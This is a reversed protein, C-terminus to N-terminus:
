GPFLKRTMLRNSAGALRLSQGCQWFPEPTTCSCKLAKQGFSIQGGEEGSRLGISKPMNIPYGDVDMCLWKIESTPLSQDLLTYRLQEHCCNFNGANPSSVSPSRPIAIVITSIQLWAKQKFFAWCTPLKSTGVKRSCHTEQLLIVLAESQLTLHHIVNM